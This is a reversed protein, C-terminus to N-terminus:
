KSIINLEASLKFHNIRSQKDYNTGVLAIVKFLGISDMRQILIPVNQGLLSEGQIRLNPYDYDLNTIQLQEPLVSTVDRLMRATLATRGLLTEMENIRQATEMDKEKPNLFDKSLTFTDFSLQAQITSDKTAPNVLPGQISFADLLVIKELAAVRDRYELLKLYDGSIKM